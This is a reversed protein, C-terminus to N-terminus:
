GWLLTNGSRYEPIVPYYLPTVDCLHFFIFLASEWAPLTQKKLTHIYFTTEDTTSLSLNQLLDRNSQSMDWREWIVSVICFHFCWHLQSIDCSIRCSKMVVGDLSYELLSRSLSPPLPLFCNAAINNFDREREIYIYGLIIYISLSLSLSLSLSICRKFNNWLYHM